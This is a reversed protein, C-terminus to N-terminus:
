KEPTITLSISTSAGAAHTSAPRPSDPTTSESHADSFVAAPPPPPPLLPSPAASPAESAGEVAAAAEFDDDRELLGEVEADAEEEEDEDPKRGFIEATLRARGESTAAAARAATAATSTAKRKWEAKTAASIYEAGDITICDRPLSPESCTKSSKRSDYAHSRCLVGRSAM